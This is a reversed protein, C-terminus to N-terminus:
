LTRRRRLWGLLGTGFMGLLLAGPAPVSFTMNPALFADAPSPGFNDGVTYGPFGNYISQVFDIQPDRVPAANGFFINGNPNDQDFGYAALGYRGPTLVVPGGVIDQFLYYSVPAMGSTNDFMAQAIVPGGNGDPRVAFLVTTLVKSAGTVQLGQVGDGGSDYVGLQYVTFNSGLVDFEAGVGGNWPQLGPSDTTTYMPTSVAQTVGTLLCLSVLAVLMRKM